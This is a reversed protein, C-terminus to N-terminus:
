LPELTIPILVPHLQLIMLTMFERATQYSTKNIYVNDQFNEINNGSTSLM